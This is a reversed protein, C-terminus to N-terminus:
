MEMPCRLCQNRQQQASVIPRASFHLSDSEAKLNFRGEAITSREPLQALLNNPNLVSDNRVQMQNVYGYATGDASLTWDEGSAFSTAGLLMLSFILRM